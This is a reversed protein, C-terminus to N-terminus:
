NDFHFIINLILYFFQPVLGWFLNVTANIMRECGRNIKSIKKGTNENEHYGLSLSLLKEQAQMPWMNEMKIASKLFFWDMGYHRFVIMILKLVFMAGIVMWLYDSIGGGGAIQPIEDFVIKLLYPVLLDLVKVGILFIVAWWMTKREDGFLSWLNKLGTWFFILNRDEKKIREDWDSM